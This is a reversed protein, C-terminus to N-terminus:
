ALDCCCEYGYTNTLPDQFCQVRDSTRPHYQWARFRYTEPFHNKCDYDHPGAEQYCQTYTYVCGILAMYIFLPLLFFIKCMEHLTNWSNKPSPSGRLMRKFDQWWGARHLGLRGQRDMLIRPMCNNFKTLHHLKANESQNLHPLNQSINTASTLLTYPGTM